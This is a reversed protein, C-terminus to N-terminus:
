ANYRSATVYFRSRIWPPVSFRIAQSNRDKVRQL